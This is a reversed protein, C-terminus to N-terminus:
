KILNLVFSQLDYLKQFLTQVKERDEQRFNILKNVIKLEFELQNLITDEYYISQELNEEIQAIAEFNLVFNQFHTQSYKLAQALRYEIQDYEMRILSFELTPIQFLKNQKLKHSLDELDKNDM